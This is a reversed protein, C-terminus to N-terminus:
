KNISRPHSPSIIIERSFTGVAKRMIEEHAGRSMGIEHVLWAVLLMAKTTAYNWLRTVVPVTSTTPDTASSFQWFTGQHGSARLAADAGLLSLM